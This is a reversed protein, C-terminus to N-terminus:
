ISFFEISILIKDVQVANKDDNKLCLSDTKGDNLENNTQIREKDYSCDIFEKYLPNKFALVQKFSKQYSNHSHLKNEESNNKIVQSPKSKVVGKVNDTEQNDATFNSNVDVSEDTEKCDLGVVTLYNSPAYFSKEGCDRIVQWWNHNSKKVLLLEEGAKIIVEKGDETYYSFDYLVHVYVESM